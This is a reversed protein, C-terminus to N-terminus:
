DITLTHDRIAALVASQRSKVSYKELISSVHNKVTNESIFLSTAIEANSKDEALFHLVERERPSIRKTPKPAPEVAEAVRSMLMEVSESPMDPKPSSLRAALRDRVRMYLDFLEMESLGDLDDARKLEDLNM